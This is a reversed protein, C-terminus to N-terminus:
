GSKSPSIAMTENLSREHKRIHLIARSGDHQIKMHHFSRKAM